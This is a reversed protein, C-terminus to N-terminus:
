TVTYIIMLKWFLYLFKEQLIVNVAMNAKQSGTKQPAVTDGSKLRFKFYTKKILHLLTAM